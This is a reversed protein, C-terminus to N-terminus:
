MYFLCNEKNCSILYQSANRGSAFAIAQIVMMYNQVRHPLVLM